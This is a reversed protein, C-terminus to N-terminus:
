KKTPDSKYITNDFNGDKPSFGNIRFNCAVDFNMKNSHM